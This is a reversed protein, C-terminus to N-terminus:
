KLRNRGIARREHQGLDNLLAFHAPKSSLSLPSLVCGSEISYVMIMITIETLTIYKNVTLNVMCFICCHSHIDEAHTLNFLLM